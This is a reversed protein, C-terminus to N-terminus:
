APENQMCLIKQFAAAWAPAVASYSYKNVADLRAQNSLRAALRRDSILRAIASEWEEDTSALFGNDGCSVLNRQHGVPSAIPPVGAALYTKVKFSGKCKAYSNDALPALGACCGALLSPETDVSYPHWDFDFNFDPRQKGTIIRFNFEMREALRKLVKLLFPVEKLNNPNGCWVVTPPDLGLSTTSDNTFRDVDIGEELVYVPKTSAFDLVANCLPATPVILADALKIRVKVGQRMFPVELHNDQYHYIYKKGLRKVCREALALQDRPIGFGNISVGQCRLVRPIRFVTFPIGALLYFLSLRKPLPGNLIARYLFDPWLSRTEARQGAHTLAEAFKPKLVDHASRGSDPPHLFLIKNNNLPM